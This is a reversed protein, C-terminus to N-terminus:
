MLFLPGYPGPHPPYSPYLPPPNSATADPTPPAYSGPFMQPPFPYSPPPYPAYPGPPPPHPAYPGPPPPYPAYPRPPTGGAPYSLVRPVPPSSPHSRRHTPSPISSDDLLPSQSVGAAQMFDLFSDNDTPFGSM